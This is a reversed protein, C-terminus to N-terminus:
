NEKMIDCALADNKVLIAKHYMMYQEM